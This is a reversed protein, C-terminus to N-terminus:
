GSAASTSAVIAATTAAHVSRIADRVAAAAWDGQALEKMRARRASRSVDPFLKRSLECADTLSALACTRDDGPAGEVVRTLRRHIEERSTAPQQLWRTTPFLGLARDHEVTLIGRDALSALLRKNVGSSEARQVWWKPKRPREQERVRRLLADLEPHTATPKASSAVLRGDHVEVHGSLALDILLAGAVGRTRAIRSALEKGDPDLGILLLEEAIILAM